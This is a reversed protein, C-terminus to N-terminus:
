IEVQGYNLRIKVRCEWQETSTPFKIENQSEGAQTGVEKWAQLSTRHKQSGGSAGTCSAKHKHLYRYCLSDVKKMEPCVYALIQFETVCWFVYKKSIQCFYYTYNPSM